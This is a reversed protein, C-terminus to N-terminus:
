GDMEDRLQALTRKLLRSVHVQPDGVTRRDREPHPPRLLADGSDAAAPAGARGACTLVERDVVLALEVDDAGLTSALNQEDGSVSTDLSSTSYAQASTMAELVDDESVEM